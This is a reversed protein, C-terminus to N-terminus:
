KSFDHSFCPSSKLRSSNVQETCGPFHRMVKVSPHLPNRPLPFELARSEAEQFLLLLGSKHPSCLYLNECCEEFFKM